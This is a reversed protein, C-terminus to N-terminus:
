HGLFHSGLALHTLGVMTPRSHAPHSLCLSFPQWREWSCVPSRQFGQRHRHQLINLCRCNNSLNAQHVDQAGSQFVHPPQGM